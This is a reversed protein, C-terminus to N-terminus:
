SAEPLEVVELSACLASVIEDPLKAAKLVLPRTTM